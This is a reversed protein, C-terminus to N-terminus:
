RDTRACIGVMPTALVAYVASPTWALNVNGMIAEADVGCCCGNGCGCDGDWCGCDDGVEDVEVM